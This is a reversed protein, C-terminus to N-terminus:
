VERTDEGGGGGENTGQRERQREERVREGEREREGEGERGGRGRGGRWRRRKEVTERGGTAAMGGGVWGGVVLTERDIEAMAKWAVQDGECM